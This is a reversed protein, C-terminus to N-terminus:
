IIKNVVREIIVKKDELMDTTAKLAVISIEVQGNDSMSTASKKKNVLFDAEELTDTVKSAIANAKRHVALALMRKVIETNM